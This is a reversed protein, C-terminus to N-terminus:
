DIPGVATDDQDWTILKELINDKKHLFAELVEEWLSPDVLTFSRKYTQGQYKVLSLGKGTETDVSIVNHYYQKGTKTTDDYIFSTKM